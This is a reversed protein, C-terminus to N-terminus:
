YIEDWERHERTIVMQAFDSVYGEVLKMFRYFEYLVFLTALTTPIVLLLSIEDFYSLVLLIM